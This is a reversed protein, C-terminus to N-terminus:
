GSGRESNHAHIRTSRGRSWSVALYGAAGLRLLAAQGHRPSVGAADALTEVSPRAQMTAPNAYTELAWGVGRAVGDLESQRLADRWRGLPTPRERRDRRGSLAATTSVGELPAGDDFISSM